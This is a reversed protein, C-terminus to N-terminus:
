TIRITELELVVVDGGGLTFRGFTRWFGVALDLPGTGILPSQATARWAGTEPTITGSVFTGATWTAIPRTDDVDLFAFEVTTATPDVLFVLDPFRLHQVSERPIGASCDSCSGHYAVLGQATM